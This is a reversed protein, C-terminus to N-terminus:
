FNDKLRLINLVLPNSCAANQRFTNLPATNLLMLVQIYAICEYYTCVHM